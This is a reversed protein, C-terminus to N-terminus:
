ERLGGAMEKRMQEILPKHYREEAKKRAEVAKEFTSFKGLRHIEKHVQITAVWCKRDPRYYVGTAGSTNNKQPQKMTLSAFNTNHERSKGTWPTFNKGNVRHGVEVHSEHQLCGCSRTPQLKKTLSSGRISKRKGCECLCIVYGKRDPDVKEVTLRGFTKGTLDM